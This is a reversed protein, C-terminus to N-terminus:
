GTLQHGCRSCFRANLRLPGGCEPCQPPRPESVQDPSRSPGPEGRAEAVHEVDPGNPLIGKKLREYLFSEGICNIEVDFEDASIGSFEFLWLSAGSGQYGAFHTLDWALKGDRNQRLSRRSIASLGECGSLMSCVQAFDAGPEFHGEAAFLQGSSQLAELGQRIGEDSFDLAIPAFVSARPVMWRLDASQRSRRCSELVEEETFRTPEAPRRHLVNILSREQITDIIAAMAEFEPRRLLTAADSNEPLMESSLISSSAQLIMRGDVPWALNHGVNEDNEHFAYFPQEHSGYFWSFEPEGPMTYLVTGLITQPRAIHALGELLATTNEIQPLGKEQHAFDLGRLPSGAAPELKAEQLLQALVADPITWTNM